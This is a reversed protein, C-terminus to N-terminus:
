VSAIKVALAEIHLIQVITGQIIDRAEIRIVKYLKNRVAYLAFLKTYSIRTLM